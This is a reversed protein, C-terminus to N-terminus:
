RNSTYTRKLMELHENTPKRKPAPKTNLSILANKRNKRSQYWRHLRRQLEILGGIKAYEARYLREADIRHKKALDRRKKVTVVWDDLAANLDKALDLVTQKQNEAKAAMEDIAKLANKYAKSNLRKEEAEIEAQLEALREAEPNKAKAKLREELEEAQSIAKQLDM